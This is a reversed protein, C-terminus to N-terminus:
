LAQSRLPFRNAHLFRTLAFLQLEPKIGDFDPSESGPSTRGQAVLVDIQCLKAVIQQANNPMAPHRKMIEASRSWPARRLVSIRRPTFGFPAPMFALAAEFMNVDIRRGEGTKEREVLGRSNGQSADYGPHQAANNGKRADALPFSRSRSPTSRSQMIAASLEPRSTAAVYPKVFYSYFCLGQTVESV